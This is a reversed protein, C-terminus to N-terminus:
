QVNDLLSREFKTVVSMALSNPGFFSVHFPLSRFINFSLGHRPQTKNSGSFPPVLCTCFLCYIVGLDFLGSEYLRLLSHINFTFTRFHASAHLKGAFHLISTM